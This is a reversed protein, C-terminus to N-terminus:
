GEANQIKEAIQNAIQLATYAEYVSVPPQGKTRIAHAFQELEMQISNVPEVKPHDVVLTKTKEGMEIPFGMQGEAPPGDYIRYIESQKDLFDITLYANKQFIRLRRMNKVSIRSATLNVVAGNHFELRANAIDPTDSVVAVGSAAIRKITSKVLHLVIDIDHIMLDLVVSVDTGRPNWLALRHGEIFMPRLELGQLQKLSLFAPNFREVHGVQGVVGAEQVLDVLLRAEDLTHTIPKEIFIHKFRRIATRALEYHTTTPTVLDVADAAELLQEYSDLPQVGLEEQARACAAPDPDYFGILEFDAITKLLKLHIRGLHGAGMVGIKINGM